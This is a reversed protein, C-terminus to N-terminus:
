NLPDPVPLDYSQTGLAVYKLYDGKLTDVRYPLGNKRFGCGHHYHAGDYQRKCDKCQVLIGTYNGKTKKKKGKNKNPVELQKAAVRYLKDIQGVLIRARYALEPSMKGTTGKRAQKVCFRVYRVLKEYKVDYHLKNRKYGYLTLGRTKILDSTERTDMLHRKPRRKPRGTQLKIKKRVVIGKPKVNKHTKQHRAWNSGAITSGCISCTKPLAKGM